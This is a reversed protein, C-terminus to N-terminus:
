TYSRSMRSRPVFHPHSTLTEVRRRKVEPSLVGLVWQLPPQAPGLAPRSVVALPFIREGRDPISGRYGPQLTPMTLLHLSFCLSAKAVIESLEACLNRSDFAEYGTSELSYVWSLTLSGNFTASTERVRYSCILCVQGCSNEKCEKGNIVLLGRVIRCWMFLSLLATGSSAM